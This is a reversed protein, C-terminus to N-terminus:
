ITACRYSHGEYELSDLRHAPMPAVAFVLSGPSDSAGALDVSDIVTGQLWEQDDQLRLAAGPCWEPAARVHLLLPTRKVRGLYRARAVIEQGPYCGKKFSVAGIRDFGLMQPIFRETTQPDLWVVHKRLEREKWQALLAASAPSGKGLFYRLGLGAPEFELGQAATSKSGPVGAVASESDM